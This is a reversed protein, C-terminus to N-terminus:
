IPLDPAGRGGGRREGGKWDRKGKESRRKLENGDGGRRVRDSWRWKVVEM